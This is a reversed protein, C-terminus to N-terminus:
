ARISYPFILPKAFDVRADVFLLDDAVEVSASAGLGLRDACFLAEVTARGLVGLLPELDAWSPMRRAVVDHIRLRDGAAEAVVVAELASDLSVRLAFGRM